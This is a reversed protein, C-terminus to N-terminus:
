SRSGHIYGIFMVSQCHFDTVDPASAKGQLLAKKEASTVSDAMIYYEGSYEESQLVVKWFEKGKM